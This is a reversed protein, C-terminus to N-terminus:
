LTRSWRPKPVIRWGVNRCQLRLAELAAGDPLEPLVAAGDAVEGGAAEVRRRALAAHQKGPQAKL